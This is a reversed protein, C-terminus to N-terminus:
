TLDPFDGSNVAAVVVTEVSAVYALVLLIHAALIGAVQHNFLEEEFFVERSYVKEEGEQHFKRM